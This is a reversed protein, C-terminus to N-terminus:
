KPLKPFAQSDRDFIMTDIQLCSEHKDAHWFCVQNSVEKRLYQLNPCAQGCLDLIITDIQFRQHRASLLFDVKNKGNEKLHQLHITIKPVKTISSWRGDFIVAGIQIFSELNGAHM